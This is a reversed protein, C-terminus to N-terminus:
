KRYKNNHNLSDLLQLNEFFIANFEPPNNYLLSDGYYQVAKNAISVAQELYKTNGTTKYFLVNAGIMM